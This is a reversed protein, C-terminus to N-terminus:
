GPFNGGCRPFIVIDLQTSFLCQQNGGGVEEDLSFAYFREGKTRAWAAYDNQLRVGPYPNDSTDNCTSTKTKVIDTTHNICNTNGNAVPCTIGACTAQFASLNAYNNCDFGFCSYDLCPIFCRENGVNGPCLFRACSLGDPLPVHNPDPQECLGRNIASCQSGDLHSGTFRYAGPLCHNELLFEGSCAYIVLSPTTILPVVPPCPPETNSTEFCTFFFDLLTQNIGYIAALADFKHCTVNWHSKNQIRDVSELNSDRALACYVLPSICVSGHTTRQEVQTTCGDTTEHARQCGIYAKGCPFGNNNNGTTANPLTRPDYGGFIYVPLAISDVASLDYDIFARTSSNQGPDVDLTFELLQSFQISPIAREGSLTSIPEIFTANIVPYHGGYKVNRLTDHIAPDEYYIVIRGGPSRGAGGVNLAGGATVAKSMIYSANQGRELRLADVYIYTYGETFNPDTAAMRADATIMMTVWVTLNNGNEDVGGDNYFNFVAYSEDTHLPHLFNDYIPQNNAPCECGTLVTPPGTFATPASTPAKSQTPASTPTKTPAGTPTKTPAPSFTPFRTPPAITITTPASTPRPTGSPINRIVFGSIVILWVIVICLLLCVVYWWRSRSSKKCEM